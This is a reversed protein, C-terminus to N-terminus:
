FCICLCWLVYRVNMVDDIRGTIQFHGDADVSAGDGTFYYGPYPKMYTQLYRDHDGYITRAMSPWPKRICLVGESSKNEM